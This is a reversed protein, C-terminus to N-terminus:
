STSRSSRCSFLSISVAAVVWESASLYCCFRKEPTAAFASVLDAPETQSLFHGASAPFGADGPARRKDVLRAGEGQQRELAQRQLQDRQTKQHILLQQRHYLLPHGEADSAALAASNAPNESPPSAASQCARKGPAAGGGRLFLGRALGFDCVKIDCNLNVLVNSPKLDRHIIDASRACSAFLGRPPGLSFLFYYICRRRSSAFGM